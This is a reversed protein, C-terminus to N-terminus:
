SDPIPVRCNGPIPYKVTDSQLLRRAAVKACAVLSLHIRLGASLLRKLQPSIDPSHLRAAFCACRYSPLAHKMPNCFIQGHFTSADAEGAM